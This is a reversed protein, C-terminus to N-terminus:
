YENKFPDTRKNNRNLFPLNGLVLALIGIAFGKAVTALEYDFPLLMTLVDSDGSYDRHISVLHVVLSEFLWGINVLISILLIFYLKSGLKKILLFLPSISGLAILWFAFKYKDETPRWATSFEANSNIWFIFVAYYIVSLIGYGILLWRIINIANNFDINRKFLGKALIIVLVSIFTGKILNDAIASVIDAFTKMLIGANIM